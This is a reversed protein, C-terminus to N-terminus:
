RQASTTGPSASLMAPWTDDPPLLIFRAADMRRLIARKWTSNATDIESQLKGFSDYMMGWEYCSTLLFSPAPRSQRCRRQLRRRPQSATRGRAVRTGVVASYVGSAKDELGQM